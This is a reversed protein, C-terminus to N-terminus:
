RRLQAFFVVRTESPQLSSEYDTNGISADTPSAALYLTKTHVSFAIRVPWVSLRSRKDVLLANAPQALGVFTSVHDFLCM